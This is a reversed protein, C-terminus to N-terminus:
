FVGLENKNVLPLSKDAHLFYDLSKVNFKSVPATNDKKLLREIRKIHPSSKSFVAQILQILARKKSIEAQNYIDSCTEILTEFNKAAYGGFESGKIRDMSQKYEECLTNFDKTPEILLDVPSISRNQFDLSENIENISTNFVARTWVRQSLDDARMDLIKANYDVAHVPTFDTLCQMIMFISFSKIYM